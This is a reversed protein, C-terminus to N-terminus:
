GQATPVNLCSAGSLVGSFCRLLNSRVDDRNIENLMEHRGRPYFDYSINYVGAERYRGILVYVGKLVYM